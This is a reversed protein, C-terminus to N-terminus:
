KNIDKYKRDEFITWNCFPSFNRSREEEAITERGKVKEAIEEEEEDDCGM